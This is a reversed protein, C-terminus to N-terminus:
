IKSEASEFLGDVSMYGQGADAFVIVITKGANEPRRSLDLAVHASAGSTIGVLLGECAAIQRCAAFADDVRVTVIDDMLERDFLGPVFGPGIGLLRHAQFQGQSMLAAGEPEYGIFQLSPKREKLAQAVGTMTGCSGLGHVFIDIGGETDRWIEEATTERHSQANAPNDHQEMYVADPLTEALERAKERSGRIGDEAPTLVLDAGLARLLQKHEDSMLESMCIAVRYGKLRGIYTMAVGANGSSAEVITGGPKLRGSQEADQILYQAPRDKLSYPNFMELKALIEADLGGALRNLRLMPTGGVLETLTDVIM